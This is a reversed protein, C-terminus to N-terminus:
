SFVGRSFEPAIVGGAFKTKLDKCSDNHSAQGQSAMGPKPYLIGDPQQRAASGSFPSQGGDSRLQRKRM